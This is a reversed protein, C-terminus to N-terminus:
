TLVGKPKVGTITSIVLTACQIAHSKGRVRILARTEAKKNVKGRGITWLLEATKALKELKVLVQIPEELCRPPVNGSLPPDLFTTFLHGLAPLRSGRPPDPPMNGRSIKFDPGELVAM